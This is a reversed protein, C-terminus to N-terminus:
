LITRTFTATTLLSPCCRCHHLPPWFSVTSGTSVQIHHSNPLIKGSGDADHGGTCTASLSCMCHLHGLGGDQKFESPPVGAGNDEISCNGRTYDVNLNIKTAGADLSNKVLGCIVGNLSTIVVSSKIQAVVDGPLPKISM